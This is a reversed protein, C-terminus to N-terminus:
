ELSMTETQLQNLYDQRFCYGPSQEENVAQFKHNTYPHLLSPAESVNKIMSDLSNVGVPHAEYWINDEVSWNKSLYQSFKPNLKTLYLKLAKYCDNMDEPTCYKELANLYEEISQRFGLLTSKSYDFGSKSRADLKDDFDERLRLVLDCMKRLNAITGVIEETNETVTTM